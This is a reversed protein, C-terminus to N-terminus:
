NKLKFETIVTTNPVWRLIVEEIKKYAEPANEENLPHHNLDFQYHGHKIPGCYTKGQDLARHIIYTLEKGDVMISIVVNWRGNLESTYTNPEYYKSIIDLQEALTMRINIVCKLIEEFSLPKNIELHPFEIVRGAGPQLFPYSKITSITKSTDLTPSKSCRTIQSTIMNVSM